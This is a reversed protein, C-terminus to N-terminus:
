LTFREFYRERRKRFKKNVIVVRSDSDLADLAYIHEIELPNLFRRAIIAM